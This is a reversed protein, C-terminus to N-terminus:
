VKTVKVINTDVGHAATDFRCSQGWYCEKKGPESQPCRHGYMCEADNCELGYRCPTMRAIATLILYENKTLKRSHDHHCNENPCEGQLFHFNCLKLKKMRSVEERPITKFDLRDVRQGYKNREVTKSRSTLNSKSRVVQFEDPSSPNASGSSIPISISTATTNSSTRSLPTVLPTPSPTLLSRPNTAVAAKWPAWVPMIKSDRFLEPFKTSRYHTKLSDLTRGFPIGEILSVRGLLKMDTLTDELIQTYAPEDSCGMFIQHCHCNYLYLHFSEKIKDHAADKGVGVDVLDFLPFSGNFGRAFEDLVSPDTTIGGRVCSECLAKMNVFMKAMIKPSVISSFSAAIYAEIASYLAKAAKQGGREGLQLFEEQFIIGDGDLLVIVFPERNMIAKTRSIQEMLEIEHLQIDRNFRKAREHDLQEQQYAGELETVRQILEEILDDKKQEISTLQTYREFYARATM